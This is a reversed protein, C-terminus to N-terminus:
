LNPEIKAMRGKTEEDVRLLDKTTPSTILKKYLENKVILLKNKSWKMNMCHSIPKERNEKVLHKM